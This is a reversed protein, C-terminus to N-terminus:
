VFLWSCSSACPCAPFDFPKARRAPLMLGMFFYLSSDDSLCDTSWAARQKDIAALRQKQLPTLDVALRGTELGTM